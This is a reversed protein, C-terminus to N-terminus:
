IDHKGSLIDKALTDWENTDARHVILRSPQAIVKVGDDLRYPEVVVEGSPLHRISILGGKGNPASFEIIREFSASHVNAPCKVRVTPKATKKM